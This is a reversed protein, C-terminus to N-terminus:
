ITVASLTATLTPNEKSLKQVAEIVPLFAGIIKTLVPLLANGIDEKLQNFSM